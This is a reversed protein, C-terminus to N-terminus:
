EVEPKEIAGLEEKLQNGLRVILSHIKAPIVTESVGVLYVDNGLSRMAVVGKKFEKTVTLLPKFNAADGQEIVALIEASLVQAIKDIDVKASSAHQLIEGEVTMLIAHDLGELEIMSWLTHKYKAYQEKKTDSSHVPELESVDKPSLTEQAPHPEGDLSSELAKSETSNESLAPADFSMSHLEPRESLLSAIIPRFSRMVSTLRSVACEPHTRICMSVTCYGIPEKCRARQQYKSTPEIASIVDNRTFPTQTPQSQAIIFDWFFEQTEKLQRPSLLKLLETFKQEDGASQLLNRKLDSLAETTTNM